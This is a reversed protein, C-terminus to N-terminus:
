KSSSSVPVVGVVKGEEVFDRYETFTISDRAGTSFWSSFAVLSGVVLLILMWPAMRPKPAGPAGPGASGPRRDKRDNDPM